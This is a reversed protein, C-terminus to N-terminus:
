LHNLPNEPSKLWEKRLLQKVQSQRLNPNEQKLRPLEREEFAAYAAKMRKEPHKDTKDQSSVRLVDIAEEVTRAEVEGRELRDRLLHNPNEMLDPGVVVGKPLATAGESEEKRRQEQRAQIQARTVKPEPAKTKGGIKAEEEELM